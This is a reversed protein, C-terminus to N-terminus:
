LRLAGDGAGGAARGPSRGPRHPRRGGAAASLPFDDPLVLTLEYAGYGPVFPPSSIPAPAPRWCRAASTAALDPAAPPSGGVRINGPSSDYFDQIRDFVSHGDLTVRLWRTFGTAAFLSMQDFFPHGLPPYLSGMQVELQHPVARDAELISGWIVAQNSHAFGLQLQQGDLYRVFLYDSEYEWGTTVLPELTGAPARPFRLTLELPGHRTGAWRELAYGPADFRHALRQYALPNSQRLLDHVQFSLM